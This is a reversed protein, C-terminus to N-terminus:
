MSGAWGWGARRAPSPRCTGYIWSRSVGGAKGHGPTVQLYLGRAAGDGTDRHYGVEKIKPITLATLKRM